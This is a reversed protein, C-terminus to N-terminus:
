RPLCLSRARRLTTLAALAAEAELAPTLYEIARKMVSASRVVQPLFMRGAGFENGVKQMAEM